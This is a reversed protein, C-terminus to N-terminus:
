EARAPTRVDLFGAVGPLDHTVGAPIQVRTGVSARLERDGTQACSARSCTLSTVLGPHVHTSRAGDCASRAVAIEIADVDALLASRLGPVGAAPGDATLQADGPPRADDIV